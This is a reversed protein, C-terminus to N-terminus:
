PVLRLQSQTHAAIAADSFQWALPEGSAWEDTQDNLHPSFTRGSVGGAIHAMVKESDAFDAVMRVSATWQPDYPNTFPYLARNLTEGSGDKPYDRNGTLRGALGDQRLPGRFRMRHVDGWVWNSPGVGYTETLESLAANAARKLMDDRTEIVDGTTTDDFWSSANAVTMTELREMWVYWTSLYADTLDDGLEDTFVARAYNRYIAQFVTPAASDADDRFDWGELTNILPAFAADDGLATLMIPTLREALLNKVDQQAAWLDDASLEGTDDLLEIMRRYRYSPSAYTTYLWPYDAPPTFHNASGVWGSAGDDGPLDVGAIFGDWPDEFVGSGDNVRMPAGGDGRTRIPVAGTAKRAVRGSSDGVVVNFSISRTAAIAELAEDVNRAQFLRHAGIDPSLFEAAAWRVSILDGSTTALGHDSIIPGRSTARVVITESRMGGEATDDKIVITEERIDFPLSAAGEIYASPDRPDENEIYLDVMDGYGNTIGFAVHETRAVLFGPFGAAVGVVRLEPTIIGIPHWIGPLDRSDVHPDNAVIAAGSASREATIAWNNSGGSWATTGVAFGTSGASRFLV